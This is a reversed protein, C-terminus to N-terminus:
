HHRRRHGHNNEAYKVKCINLYHFAFETLFSYQYEYNELIYNKFFYIRLLTYLFSVATKNDIAEAIGMIITLM